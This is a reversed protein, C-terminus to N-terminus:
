VFLLSIFMVLFIFFPILLLVGLISLAIGLCGWRKPEGGLKSYAFNPPSLLVCILGVIPSFILSILFSWGFGINRQAGVLGVLVSLLCGSVLGFIILLLSM